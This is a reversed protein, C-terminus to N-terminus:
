KNDYSYQYFATMALSFYTVLASNSSSLALTCSSSATKRPAGGAGEEDPGIARRALTDAMIGIVEPGAGSGMWPM